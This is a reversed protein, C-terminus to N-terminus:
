AAADLVLAPENTRLVARQEFPSLQNFLDRNILLINQEYDLVCILPQGTADDGIPEDTYRELRPPRDHPVFVSTM